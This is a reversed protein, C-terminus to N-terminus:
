RHPHVVPDSDSEAPNPTTEHRRGQGTPGAHESRKHPGVTEQEDGGTELTMVGVLLHLDAQQPTLVLDLVRDDNDARMVHHEVQCRRHQPSAIGPDGERRRIDARETADGRQAVAQAVQRPRMEEIGFAALVRNRVDIPNKGAVVNRNDPEDMPLLTQDDGGAVRKAEAADDIEGSRPKAVDIALAARTSAHEEVELEGPQADDGRRDRPVFSLLVGMEGHRGRNGGSPGVGPEADQRRRSGEPEVENGHGTLRVVEHEIPGRQFIRNEDRKPFEHRRTLESGFDLSEAPVVGALHALSNESALAFRDNPSVLTSLAESVRHLRPGCWARSTRARIEPHGLPNSGGVELAM